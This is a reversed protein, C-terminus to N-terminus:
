PAQQYSVAARAESIRESLTWVDVAVVAARDHPALAAVDVQQVELGPRSSQDRSQDVIARAARQKEGIAARGGAAGGCEDVDAWRAAV